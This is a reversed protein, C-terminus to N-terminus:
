AVRNLLLYVIRHFGRVTQLDAVAQWIACLVIGQCRRLYSSATQERIGLDDRPLFSFHVADNFKRVATTAGCPFQRSFAEEFPFASQLEALQRYRTNRDSETMCWFARAAVPHRCYLSTPVSGPGAQPHPSSGAGLKLNKISRQHRRLSGRCVPGTQLHKTLQEVRVCRDLRAAESRYGDASDFM